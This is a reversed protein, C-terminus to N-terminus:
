MPAFDLEEVPYPVVAIDGTLWERMSQGQKIQPGALAYAARLNRRAVATQVFTRAVRQAAPDLDITPPVPSRDDPAASSLPTDLDKGTNGVAIAGGVAVAVAGVVLWGRGM